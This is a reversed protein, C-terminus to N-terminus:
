SDGPLVLFDYVLNHLIKNTYGNLRPERLSNQAIWVLRDYKESIKSAM